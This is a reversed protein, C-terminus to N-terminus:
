MGLQKALLDHTAKDLVTGDEDEFEEMTEADWRGKKRSENLHKQLALAKDIETIEFYDRSSEIGLCKLGYIHRSDVFHREFARRGFYSQNGCIQCKFEHSLGQLRYLWYPLPNGDPGIPYNKKTMRKRLNEDDGENEEDGMDEEDMDGGGVAGRRMFASEGPLRAQKKEINEKTSVLADSALDAQFKLLTELWSVQELHELFKGMMKKHKKSTIHSKWVTDKAMKMGCSPCFFSTSKELNLQWPMLWEDDVQTSGDIEMGNSSSETSSLPTFSHDAWQSKFETRQSSKETELPYLPTTKAIFQNFYTTLDALFSLYEPTKRTSAPVPIFGRAELSILFGMYDLYYPSDPIGKLNIFKFHIAQLDVYRGFGEASTFLSACMQASADKGKELLNKAEHTTAEPVGFKSHYEKIEKVQDYFQAFLSVSTPDGDISKLEEHRAKDEDRYIEDLRTHREVIREVFENVRHSQIL